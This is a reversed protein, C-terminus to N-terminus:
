FTKDLDLLEQTSHVALTIEIGASIAPDMHKLQVCIRCLTPQGGAGVFVALDVAWKSIEHPDIAAMKGQSISFSYEHDSKGNIEENYMISAFLFIM